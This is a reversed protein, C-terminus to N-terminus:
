RRRENATRTSSCESVADDSRSAFTYVAPNDSAAPILRNGMYNNWLWLAYYEPKRGYSDDPGFFLDSFCDWQTAIAVGNRAIEGLFISAWLGSFLQSNDLGGALNWESYAIEIQKERRPQRRYISRKVQDVQDAVSKGIDAFM